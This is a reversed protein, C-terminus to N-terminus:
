FVIPELNRHQVTGSWDPWIPIGLKKLYRLSSHIQKTEGWLDLDFWGDDEVAPNLFASTINVTLGFRSVLQSIIPKKYYSKLICLQIHLRNTQGHSLWKQCETAWQNKFTELEKRTLKNFAKPFPQSHQHFQIHNAIALEVLGVGLEQLYSLSNTIQQPNGLLELDFWGDSESGSVLSAAVINVTIGYRSVLRSIVPQRQYQTPVSIRSHIPASKRIKNASM